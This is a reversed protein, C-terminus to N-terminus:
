DLYIIGYTKDLCVFTDKQKKCFESTDYHSKTSKVKKYIVKVQADKEKKIQLVDIRTTQISNFLESLSKDLDDFLPHRYSIFHKNLKIYTKEHDIPKLSSPRNTKEEIQNLVKELKEIKQIIKVLMQRNTIKYLGVEQSEKDFYNTNKTMMAKKTDIVISKQLMGDHTSRELAITFTYAQM